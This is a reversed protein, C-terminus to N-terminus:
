SDGRLFRKRFGAAAARAPAAPPPVIRSQSAGAVRTETGPARGVESRERLVLDDGVDAVGLPEGGDGLEKTGAEHM